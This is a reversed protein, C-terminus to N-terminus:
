NLIKFNFYGALLVAVGDFEVAKIGVYMTHAPDHSRLLYKLCWGKSLNKLIQM